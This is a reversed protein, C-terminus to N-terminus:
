RGCSTYSGEDPGAQLEVSHAQPDELGLDLAVTPLGAAVDPASQELLDPGAQPGPAQALPMALGPLAEM